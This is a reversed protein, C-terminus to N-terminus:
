TFMCADYVGAALALPGTLGLGPCRQANSHPRLHHSHAALLDGFGCFRM